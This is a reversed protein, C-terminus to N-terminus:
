VPPLQVGLVNGLEQLLQQSARIDQGTDAAAVIAQALEALVTIARPTDFDEDMAAYFRGRYDDADFLEGSGSDAALARRMTQVIQEARAVAD